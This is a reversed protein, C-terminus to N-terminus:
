LEKTCVRSSHCQTCADKDSPRCVFCDAHVSYSLWQDISLGSRQQDSSKVQRAPVGVSLQHLNSRHARLRIPIGDCSSQSYCTYVPMDMVSVWVGILFPREDIGLAGVLFGSCRHLRQHRGLGQKQFLASGRRLFRWWVRQKRKLVGLNKKEKRAM